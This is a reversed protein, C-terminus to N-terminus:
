DVRIGALMADLDAVERLRLADTALRDAADPRLRSSTLRVFKAVVQADTMPRSAHGVPHDVQAIERAGSRQELEVRVTLRGPYEATMRPDIEVSVLAIDRLRMSDRFGVETFDRDCVAGERLATVVLYPLSHDATERTWPDWKNASDSTFQHCVDSMVLRLSAIPDESVPQPIRARIELAADIGAQANYQVPHLKIHTRMIAFGDEASRVLATRDMPGSVRREFGNTGTFPEAPGELGIEALRAARIANQVANAPACAKWMTLEGNRTQRLAVNPIAALSIARRLGNGDLGLLTAGACAAAIAVYTVHDWGRSRIEASDCLRCAVEYGVVIARILEETAHGGHEALAVMGPILDAPHCAEGSASLYTDMYDQSHMMTGNALAAVEPSVRTRTGWVSAAPGLAAASGAAFARMAKSPSEDWGGVAIGITDLLRRGVEHAVEDSLSEERVSEVLAVLAERIDDM